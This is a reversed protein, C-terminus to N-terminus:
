EHWSVNLLVLRNFLAYLARALLYLFSTLVAFLSNRSVSVCM